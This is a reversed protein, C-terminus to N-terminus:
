KKCMEWTNNFDYMYTNESNDLKYTYHMIGGKRMFISFATKSCDEDLTDKQLRLKTSEGSEITSTFKDLFGDSVYYPLELVNGNVYMNKVKTIPDIIITGSNKKLIYTAIEQLSMKNLYERKEELKNQSTNIGYAITGILFLIALSLIFINKPTFEIPQKKKDDAYSLIPKRNIHTLPKLRKHTYTQKSTKEKNKYLYWGTGLLPVGTILLLGIIVGINEMNEDAIFPLMLALGIAIAGNIMMFISFSKPFFNVLTKKTEKITLKKEYISLDKILRKQKFHVLLAVIVIPIFGIISMGTLGLLMLCIVVLPLIYKFIRKHFKYLEEKQIEDTIIYGKRLLGKAYYITIGDENKKFLAKTM